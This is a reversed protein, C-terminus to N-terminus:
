GILKWRKVMPEPPTLDQGFFNQKIWNTADDRKAIDEKFKRVVEKQITSVRIVYEKEDEVGNYRPDQYYIEHVDTEPDLVQNGSEKLVQRVKEAEKWVDDNRRKPDQIVFIPLVAKQYHALTQNYDLRKIYEQLWFFLYGWFGALMITAGILGDMAADVCFFIAVSVIVSQTIRILKVIKM